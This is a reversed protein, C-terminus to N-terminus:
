REFSVSEVLGEFVEVEVEKDDFTVPQLYFFTLYLSYGKLIINKMKLQM